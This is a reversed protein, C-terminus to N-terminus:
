HGWCSIWTEMDFNYYFMATNYVKKLYLIYILCWHMQLKIFRQVWTKMDLIRLTSFTQNITKQHQFRTAIRHVHSLIFFLSTTLRTSHYYENPLFKIWYSIVVMTNHYNLIKYFDVLKKQTQTQTWLPFGEPTSSQDKRSICRWPAPAAPAWDLPGTQGRHGCRRGWSRGWSLWVAPLTKVLLTAPM